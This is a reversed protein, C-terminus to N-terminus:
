NFLDVYNVKNFVQLKGGVTADLIRRGAREYSEKALQYAIESTNLDPLQWRFGAGFYRSDFHNPDSGESLVVKHPTGQTTFSHDVGILIVENFGMYYALQMTAYTVTAGGWIGQTIDTSFFPKFTLFLYALDKHHMFRARQNWNVFRFINLQEIDVACQEIVLENIAVYYTMAFGLTDFMLYIRNMGFTIENKLFSLDMNKLSPGNGVIFCRKGEHRNYCQRLKQFNDSSSGAQTKWALWHPFHATRRKLGGVVRGLDIENNELATKFRQM